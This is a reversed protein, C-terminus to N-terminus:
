RQLLSLYRGAVARNSLDEYARELDEPAIQTPAARVAAALSQPDGSTFTIGLRYTEVLDAAACDNSCVVPLRWAIADMLTASSQQYGSRFSLIAVNAASYLLDRTEDSVWGPFLHPERGLPTATADFTDAVRGGIVLRWDALEAFARVVVDSDKEYAAGFLLALHEDPAVGLRRRADPIPRCQRCGAIPLVKPELFPTIRSWSQRISEHPTAVRAAGGGRRRRSEAHAALRRTFVGIRGSLFGQPEESAYFLWRGPGALVTALSIDIDHCLVVVQSPHAVHRRNQRAAGIAAAARLLRGLPEVLRGSRRSHDAMNCKNALRASILAIRGYRRIAIPVEASCDLRWGQSTLAEVDGGIESFGAALDAFLHPLHGGARHAWDEVVLICPRPETRLADSSPRM